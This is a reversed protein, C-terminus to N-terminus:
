DLKEWVCRSISLNTTNDLGVVRIPLPTGVVGTTASSGIFVTPTFSGDALFVLSFSGCFCRDDATSNGANKIDTLYTWNTALVNTTSGSPSALGTFYFYISDTASPTSADTFSLSYQVTARYHKGATYSPIAFLTTASGAGGVTQGTTLFQQVITPTYNANIIPASATGTLTIGTGATASLVGTNVVSYSAPSGSLGIGSGASLALVGTNVITRVSTGSIQIGAGGTLATSVVPNISTGTLAIGNGATLSQVSAHSAPLYESLIVGTTPDLISAVSM